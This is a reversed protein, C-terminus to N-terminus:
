DDARKQGRFAEKSLLRSFCFPAPLIKIINRVLIRFRRIDYVKAKYTYICSYLM